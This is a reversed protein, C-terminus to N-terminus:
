TMRGAVFFFRRGEGDYRYFGADGTRLWGTRFVTATAAPDFAYGRMVNQGRLVIEGEEGEECESGSPTHITMEGIPLPLGVSPLGHTALWARHEEHSEEIPLFSCFGTAESLGYGHIVPRKFTQEFKVALELSLPGAGCVLHRFHALKYAGMPPKAKLLSHLMDPAVSVVSVRDGSIREFFKEVQFAENLVLGGGAFMPVLLTLVIGKVHHIPLVCMVRQDDSMRHWEAAGMASALLNANDLMVGKSAGSSGPTYVLLAIDDPQGKRTLKLTTKLRAAESQLHPLGPNVRKGVQVVTRLEPLGPELASFRAVFADRVYLARAGSHNLIFTNRADDDDPNLPVLVAGLLFVAFYLIVVDPHNCAVTAVRDGPTIGSAILHNATRCVEEYFERYTLERRQGEASYFILYTQLENSDAQEELLRGITAYPTLQETSPSDGLTRARAITETLTANFDDTLM